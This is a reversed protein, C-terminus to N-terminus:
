PIESKLEIRILNHVSFLCHYLCMKACVQFFFFVLNFILKLIHIPFECIFQEYRNNWNIEHQNWVNWILYNWISKLNILNTYKEMEYSSYIECLTRESHDSFFCNKDQCGYQVIKFAWNALCKYFCFFFRPTPYQFLSKFLPKVLLRTIVKLSM